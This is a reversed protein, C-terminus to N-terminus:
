PVNVAVPPAHTTVEGRPEKPPMPQTSYDSAPPQARYAEPPTVPAPPVYAPPPSPPSGASGMLGLAMCAQAAINDNSHKGERPAAMCVAWTALTNEAIAMNEEGLNHWNASVIGAKEAMRLYQCSKDMKPASAGISVGIPAVSAGGSVTGGCYDSSFSSSAALPVATNTGVYTRKLQTSNFTNSVTTGQSNTANQGQTSATSVSNHADQGQM